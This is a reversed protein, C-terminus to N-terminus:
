WTKTVAQYYKSGAFSATLKGTFSAPNPDGPIKINQRFWGNADTTPTGLVQGSLKVTVPAGPVPSGDSSRVLNGNAFQTVVVKKCTSPYTGSNPDYGPPPSAAGVRSWAVKCPEQVVTETEYFGPQGASTLAIATDAKSVVLMGNGKGGLYRQGVMPIFQAEITHNGPELGVKYDFRTVGGAGSNANGVVTGDISFIVNANSVGQSDVKDVVVAQLKVAAGYQAGIAPVEIAVPPDQFQASSQGPKVAIQPVAAKSTVGQPANGVPLVGGSFAASCTCAVVLLALLRSPAMLNM